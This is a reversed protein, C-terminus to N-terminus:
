SYKRLETLSEFIYSDLVDQRFTRNFREILSNQSPKGSQIFVWEVGSKKCWQSLAESIFEPGTDSRITDPRGRWEALTELERIGRQCPLSTDVTISLVERNFDDIINLTRLTKGNALPIM